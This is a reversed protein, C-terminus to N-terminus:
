LLLTQHRVADHTEDLHWRASLVRGPTRIHHRGGRCGSRNQRDLRNSTLIEWPSCIQKTGTIWLLLGTVTIRQVTSIKLFSHECCKLHIKLWHQPWSFCHIGWHSSHLQLTREKEWVLSTVTRLPLVAPQKLKALLPRAAEWVSFKSHQNNRQETPM